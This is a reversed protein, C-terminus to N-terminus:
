CLKYHTVDPYKQVKMSDCRNSTRDIREEYIDIGSADIYMIPKNGFSNKFKHLIIQM